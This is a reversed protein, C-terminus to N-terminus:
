WLLAPPSDNASPCESSLFHRSGATSLLFATEVPVGAVGGPVSRFQNCTLDVACLYRFHHHRVSGFFGRKEPRCVRVSSLSVTLLHHNERNCLVRLAVCSGTREGFRFAYASLNHSRDTQFTQVLCNKKPSTESQFAMLANPVRNRPLSNTTGSFCPIAQSPHIISRLPTFVNSTFISNQPCFSTSFLSAFWAQSTREFKM